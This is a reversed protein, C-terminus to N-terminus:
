ALDRILVPIRFRTGCAIGSFLRVIIKRAGYGKANKSTLKQRHFEPCV